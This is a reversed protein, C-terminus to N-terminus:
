EVPYVYLGFRMEILRFYVGLTLCHSLVVSMPHKIIDFILYNQSQSYYEIM